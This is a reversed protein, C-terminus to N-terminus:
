LNRISLIEINDNDLLLIKGDVQHGVYNMPSFLSILKNEFFSKYGNKLFLHARILLSLNNKKMFYNFPKKGFLYIGPGRPSEEWEEVKEDPDNWLLQFLPDKAAEIDGKSIEELDKLSPPPNPIGGHIALIKDNVLCGVPFLSFLENFKRYVLEGKDKLKKILEYRFGYYDNIPYTEHNGRLTIIRGRERLVQKLLDTIIELSHFGRDVYDGLFVIYADNLNSVYKKIRLYSEIDGHIDGIFVVKDSKIKILSPLKNYYKEASEITDIVTNFDLMDYM